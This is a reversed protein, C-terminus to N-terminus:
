QCLLGIYIKMMKSESTHMYDFLLRSFVKSFVDFVSNIEPFLKTLVLLISFIEQSSKVVLLMTIMM